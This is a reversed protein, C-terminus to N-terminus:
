NVVNTPHGAWFNLINEVAERGTAIRTDVTGTANHPTLVVNDLAYLREAVHPEHEFVDLAAGAIRKGELCEVLAGEDVIAGRATNVLFATPKLLSLERRGLLHRTEATLPAHISVFDSRRLLEDLEVREFGEVRSQRNCYIVEMRFAKAMGALLKGINGMGIIGLTRGELTVGLNKMTGWMSEREVRLRRDCEAIRRAAGLLLGMAMEATPFCVSRPTNCVTIGKARAYGVDINNYGVGYNSIIGLRKGADILERELPRQFIPVLADYEGIMELLEENSYFEKEPLTVVHEEGLADFSERPIKYTVLIKM